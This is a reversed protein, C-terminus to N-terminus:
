KQLHILFFSLPNPGLTEPNSWKTQFDKMQFFSQLFVAAIITSDIIPSSTYLLEQNTNLLILFPIVYSFSIILKPHLAIHHEREPTKKSKFFRSYFWIYYWDCFSNFTTKRNTRNQHVFLQRLMVGPVRPESQLFDM